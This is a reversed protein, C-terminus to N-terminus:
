DDDGDERTLDLAEKQAFQREELLAIILLLSKGPESSISLRSVMDHLVSLAIDTEKAITKLTERKM